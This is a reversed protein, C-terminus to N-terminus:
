SGIPLRSSGSPPDNAPASTVQLHTALIEIPDGSQMEIRLRVGDTEETCQAENVYSSPGWPNRAELRMETLGHAIVSVDTFSPASFTPSTTEVNGFRLEATGANWDLALPLLEADHLSPIDPLPV